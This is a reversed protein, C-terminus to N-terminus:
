LEGAAQFDASGRDSAVGVQEGIQQEDAPQEWEMGIEAFSQNPSGLDIQPVAPQEVSQKANAGVVVQGAMGNRSRAPFSKRDLIEDGRRGRAGGCVEVAGGGAGLDVQQELQGASFQPGDFDLASRGGPKFSSKVLRDIVELRFAGEGDVAPFFAVGDRLIHIRDVQRVEDTLEAAHRPLYVQGKRILAPPEAGHHSRERTAGSEQATRGADFSIREGGIRM